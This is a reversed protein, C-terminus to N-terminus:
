KRKTTRKRTPSTKPADARDKYIERAPKGAVTALMAAQARLIVDNPILGADLDRLTNDLERNYSELAGIANADGRKASFTLRMEPEGPSTCLDRRDWLLLGLNTSANVYGLDAAVRYFHVARELNKTVGIGEDHYLGANFAAEANGTEAAQEWLKLAKLKDMGRNQGKSYFGGLRSLAMARVENPTTPSNALNEILDTARKGDKPGGDGMGLSTSLNFISVADGREALLELM